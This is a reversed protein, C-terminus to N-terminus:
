NGGKQQEKAKLASERQLEKWRGSKKQFEVQDKEYQAQAQKWKELKAEQSRKYLEAPSPSRSQNKAVEDQNQRSHPRRPDNPDEDHKEPDPTGEPVVPAPGPPTPELPESMIAGNAQADKAFAYGPNVAVLPSQIVIDGQNMVILSSGVEFVIQQKATVVIKTAADLTYGGETSEVGIDGKSRLTTTGGVIDSLNGKVNRNQPGKVYITRSGGVKNSQDNVVQLNQNQGVKKDCNRNVKEDKDLQAHLHFLEHGAKDEMRIENYGGGGGTSNSRLVTQTKDAPLKMPVANVATFVRGTIIPRDPDGNLFEVLVEQGIRPIQVGGYGAGGWTQAVPIWCSTEESRTSRRDWHFHVRVRGYEDCHIEEGRPGVVTASEVGIIRPQPALSARYALKTSVAEVHLSLPSDFRGALHTEVSLFANPHNLDDAPHGELGFTTGPALRLDNTTLEITQHDNRRAELDVVALRKGAEPDTRARGRDDASPSQGDDADSVFNFNEPYYFLELENNDNVAASASLEFEAARRYDRDRLTIRNPRVRQSKRLDTAMLTTLTANPDDHYLLRGPVPDLRQPADALVLRTEREDWVFFFTVGVAALVRYLFEYDTEAYQVKYKRAPYSKPDLRLEYPVQWESLLKEAIEVESLYQFIRYNRRQTLLWLRPVLTLKYRCLGEGGELARVLELESIVGSWTRTDTVSGSPDEHAVTFMASRGVIADFDLTPSPHTADIQLRFLTSIAETAIFHRVDFRPAGAETPCASTRLLLQHHRPRELAPQNM